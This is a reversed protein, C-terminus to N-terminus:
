GINVKEVVRNAKILNNNNITLGELQATVNEINDTPLCADDDDGFGEYLDNDENGCDVFENNEAAHVNFLPQQGNNKFSLVDAAFSGWVFDKEGYLSNSVGDSQFNDMKQLSDATFRTLAPQLLDKLDEPPVILRPRLFLRCLDKATFKADHPLLLSGDRAQFMAKDIAGATQCTPDGGRKGRPPLFSSVDVFGQSFDIRLAPKSNKEKSNSRKNKVIEAVEEDVDEVTDKGKEPLTAEVTKAIASRLGRKWHRAGAWNCGMAQLSAADFYSYENGAASASPILVGPADSKQQESEMGTDNSFDEQDDGMAEYVPDYSKVPTTTSLKAQDRHPSAIISSRRTNVAEFGVDDDAFMDCAENDEDDFMFEDNVMDTPQSENETHKIVADDRSGCLSDTSLCGVTSSEIGIAQRYEEFANTIPLNAISLPSFGAHMILDTVDVLADTNPTTDREQAGEDSFM